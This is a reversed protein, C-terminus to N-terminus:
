DLTVRAWKWPQQVMGDGKGAPWFVERNDRWGQVALTFAIGVQAGKEPRYGNLRSAPIFIEM